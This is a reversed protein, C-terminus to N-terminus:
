GIRETVDELIRLFDFRDVDEVFLREDAVVRATM